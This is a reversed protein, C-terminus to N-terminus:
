GHNLVVANFPACTLKNTVMVARSHGQTMTGKKGQSCPLEPIGKNKLPDLPHQGEGNTKNNRGEKRLRLRM